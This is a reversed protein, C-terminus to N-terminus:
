LKREVPFQQWDLEFHGFDWGWDGGWTIKYGLERAAEKVARGIEHYLSEPKWVGTSGIYAMVDVAHSRRYRRGKWRCWRKLHRSNLTKSSGLRLYEEQQEMTRACQVIGFDVNTKQIALEMIEIIAPHGESLRAKSRRGLVFSKPRPVSSATSRSPVKRWLVGEDLCSTEVLTHVCRDVPVPKGESFTDGVIYRRGSNVEVMGVMHDIYDNAGAQPSKVVVRWLKDLPVGSIALLELVTSALGDCDDRLHFKPDDLMARASSRWNEVKDATYTFRKPAVYRDWHVANAHTNIKSVM